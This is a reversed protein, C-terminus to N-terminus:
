PNRSSLQWERALRLTRANDAVDLFRARWELGIREAREEIRAVAAVLAARAEEHRDSADLTRVFALRVLSEGEELETSAALAMAEAAVARAAAPDGQALRVEALTALAAARLPPAVHLVEAARSAEREASPLDGRALQAQALYTRASGELRRDGQAVLTEIAQELLVIAGDPDGRQALVTGLNHRATAVVNPLGLRLAIALAERLVEEAEALAGGAICAYAANAVNISALRASGAETFSQAAARSLLYCGHADGRYMALAARAGFIMGRVNADGTEPLEEIRAGLQAALDLRGGFTLHTAVRAASGLLPDAPLGSSRAAVLLALVDDVLAVLRDAHGRRACAISLQGLAHCWDAGGRPLTAMAESAAEEAAAFQGLWNKADALTVLLQARAAGSAGGALAREVRAAAAAFDNGGLAQEAARGYYVIAKDAAGGRQYHEALTLADTEGRQDLWEAALRHGLTRDADTLLAYGAERMLEHRFAYEEEGPFRREPRRLVVEREVLIGLWERVERGDGGLLATVGGRWFLPGFISGARLVRRAEPELEELRAGMMALVTAPVDSRKEATARILEELYLANGGAREVIRTVTADPVAGLAERVLRESSRRTLEGLRLEQLGREPWLNPFIAHVEPRAFALVLLPRGEALRLAGDLLKVTPLDGWHLDEVVLVLPGAGAEAVIWDEWARRIQEGMLMPDRRASRLQASDEDSFRAGVLEGIFNAVRAVEDRQLHRGLRARLKQQRVSLPEGDFIGAIRRIAPALLGFPSGARTPDGRAIWVEPPHEHRLLRARVEQALRSKGAGAPATILVPRALPEAVSEDYLGGLFGLERERGIFPTRKGLLTRAADDDPREGLLELGRRDGGIAFRGDLLGATTEDIRVPRRGAGLAPPEAGMVERLLRAADEIAEGVPFRLAVMGRGTALAMPAAPVLERLALACRAARAAQDTAAGAGKLTVVLSGDALEELTGGYLEAASRLPAHPDDAALPTDALATAARARWVRAAPAALPVEAASAALTRALAPRVEDADDDDDDDIRHTRDWPDRAPPRADDDWGDGAPASAHSESELAQTSPRSGARPRDPRATLTALIVSLVRQEGATLASPAPPASPAGHVAVRRLEDALHAADRPRLAPDKALLRAVLEDLAEPVEERLERVRPAEDLLIKALLAMINGALFVPRGTLCEFLIAGLAFVDARADVGRAGQAQEPAVYGPTGVVGANRTGTVFRGSRAIGFDLLKVGALEKDVLFLNSPKMDRHVVGRAHVVALAGAVTELFRQAEGVELPGRLLRDALTEGELWEMAIYQGVPTRGHAVYRVIRPHDLEALLRAERAFSEAASGDVRAMMKVAVPQGTQRDIARYVVGM